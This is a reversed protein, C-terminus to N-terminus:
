DLHGLDVAGMYLHGFSSHTICNGHQRLMEATFGTLEYRAECYLFSEPKQVDDLTTLWLNSRHALFVDHSTLGESFSPVPFHKSGSFGEWDPYVQKRLFESFCTVVEAEVGASFLVHTALGCIGQGEIGRFRRTGFFKQWFTKPLHELALSLNDHSCRTNRGEYLTQFVKVLTELHNQEIM